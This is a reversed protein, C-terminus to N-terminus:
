RLVFGTVQVSTRAHSQLLYQAPMSQKSRLECKSRQCASGEFGSFCSCRGTGYDCSGQGSCQEARHASNSDGENYLGLFNSQASFAYEDGRRVNSVLTAGSVKSADWFIFIGTPLNRQKLHLARGLSDHDSVKIPHSTRAKMSSKEDLVKYQFYGTDSGAGSSLANVVIQLGKNMANSKPDIIVSLLDKSATEAGKFIVKTDLGNADSLASWGAGIPCTGAFRM